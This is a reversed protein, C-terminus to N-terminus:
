VWYRITVRFLAMALMPIIILLQDWFWPKSLMCISSYMRVFYTRCKQQRCPKKLWEHVVLIEMKRFTFVETGYTVLGEMGIHDYYGAAYRYSHGSHTDGKRAVYLPRGNQYGAIVSGEPFPNRSDPDYNVWSISCRPSVTLMEYKGPSFDLVQGNLAYQGQNAHFKGPIKASELIARAIVIRNDTNGSPQVAYSVTNSIDDLAPPFTDQLIWTMCPGQTTMPITVFDSEPELSVCPQKGLFCYSEAVNYNIVNCSIDRLCHWMCREQPLATHNRYIENNTVCRQGIRPERLYIERCSAGTVASARIRNLLFVTIIVTFLTQSLLVIM